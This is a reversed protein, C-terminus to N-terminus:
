LPLAIAPPGASTIRRAGARDTGDMEDATARLGAATERLADASGDLSTAAVAFVPMLLAPLFQCLVGYAQTDMTVHGAANRAQEVDAAIADVGAAHQRVSGAPFQVAGTTM